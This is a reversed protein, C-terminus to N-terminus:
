KKDLEAILADAMSVSVLAITDHMDMNREGRNDADAFIKLWSQMAMGAFWDRRKAAETQLKYKDYDERMKLREADLDIQPQKIAWTCTCKPSPTPDGNNWDTGCSGCVKPERAEALIEEETPRAPPKWMFPDTAILEESM